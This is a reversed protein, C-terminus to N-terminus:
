YLQAGPLTVLTRFNSEDDGALLRGVPIGGRGGLSIARATFPRAFEFQVWAPGGGQPAPITLATNLADDLLPAADLAGASTHVKPKQEATVVEDPPTRYAVVASDGYHTPDRPP